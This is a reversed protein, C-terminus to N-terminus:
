LNGGGVGVEDACFCACVALLGLYILVYRYNLLLYNVPNFKVANAVSMAEVAVQNCGEDFGVQNTLLYIYLSFRFPSKFFSCLGGSLSFNISITYLTIWVVLWCSRSESILVSSAPDV